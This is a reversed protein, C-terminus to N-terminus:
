GTAAQIDGLKGAAPGRRQYRAEQAAGSLLFLYSYRRHLRHRDIGHGGSTLSGVPVTVLSLTLM